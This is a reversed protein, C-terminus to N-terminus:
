MAYSSPTVLAEHDTENVVPRKPQTSPGADVAVMPSPKGAHQHSTCSISLNPRGWIQTDCDTCRYKLRNSRDTKKTEAKPTPLVLADNLPEATTKRLVDLDIVKVSGMNNLTPLGRRQLLDDIPTDPEDDSRLARTLVELGSVSTVAEDDTADDGLKMALVISGDGVRMIDVSKMKMADLEEQIDEAPTGAAELAERRENKYAEVEDPHPYLVLTGPPATCPFRHVWSLTFSTTLLKECAVHFAGDRIIYHDMKEGTMKGGPLGTDSPCLGVELMRDAWQRNHHARKGVTGFDEQWKHVMEHVLTSLVCMISSIGFFAPNLCIEDAKQTGRAAVFQDHHYYGMSRGKRVLTILVPALDGKFLHRNFHDYAHQLEQYLSETPRSMSTETRIPNHVGGSPLSTNPPNATSQFTCDLGKDRCALYLFHITCDLEEQRGRVYLLSCCPRIVTKTNHLGLAVM